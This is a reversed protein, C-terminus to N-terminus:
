PNIVYIKRQKKTVFNATGVAGITLDNSFTKGELVDEPQADGEASYEAEVDALGFPQTYAFGGDDGVLRARVYNQLGVTDLPLTEGTHIINGDQEMLDYEAGTGCNINKKFTLTDATNSEIEAYRGPNSGGSKIYIVKGEHENVSWTKSTDTLTDATGSTSTGSEIIDVGSIWDITKVGGITEVNDAEITISAEGVVINNIIPTLVPNHRNINGGSPDHTFYFEGFIMVRRVEQPSLEAMFLTNTNRGITSYGHDDSNAFGWVPRFPMMELLLLDWLVRDGSYRDGMNYVEIGTCLRNNKYFDIYAQKTWVYRGPHQLQSIGLRNAIESITWQVNHKYTDYLAEEERKWIDTFFQNRHHGSSLENGQISLMTQGNIEYTESGYGDFGTPPTGTYIEYEPLDEHFGDWDYDVTLTDSTNGTIKRILFPEDNSISGRAIVVFKGKHEDTTWSKAIDTITNDTLATATGTVPTDSPFYKGSPWTPVLDGYDHDTIAFVDFGFNAYKEIQAKPETAGDSARTHAHFDGKYRNISAFNILKYPNLIVQKM